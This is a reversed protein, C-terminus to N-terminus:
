RPRSPSPKVDTGEGASGRRDLAAEISTRRVRGTSRTGTLKKGASVQHADDRDTWGRLDLLIGRRNRCALLGVTDPMRRIEDITMVPVKENQVNTSSGNDNYSHGTTRIRRLGLLSEIDRLHDVDSAGGLLLKATAASWITDAESRSWATEAQSLAQLVVVTSIGIGGGDAVIRPLAPWSFMNAIEDLILALPLDLRSGPSALAKRRATEVMDDLIAGLFGGVSGAGAGTGVLYLSNPGLSSRTSTSSSGPGPTMAKRISPISLPRLAVSSCRFWSNALLKEDGNIIADLDESWGPSGQNALM